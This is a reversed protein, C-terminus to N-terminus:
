EKNLDAYGFYSALAPAIHLHLVYSIFVSSFFLLTSVDPLKRSGSAATSSLFFKTCLFLRKGKTGFSM